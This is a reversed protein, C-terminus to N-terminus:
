GSTCVVAVFEAPSLVSVEAESFGKCDRTVLVDVNMGRATEAVLGDGLDDNTDILAKM